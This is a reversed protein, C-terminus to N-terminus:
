AGFTSNRTEEKFKLAIHQHFNKKNFVAIAVGIRSKIKRAILSGLSKSYEVNELQKQHVMIQVQSPQRSIRIVDAKEVNIEMGNWLM